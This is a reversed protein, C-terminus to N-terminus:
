HRPLNAGSRPLEDHNMNSKSGKSGAIQARPSVAPITLHYEVEIVKWFETGFNNSLVDLAHAKMARLYDAVVDVPKKNPPLLSRVQELGLPDALVNGVEQSPDLLLKMYQLLKGEKRISEPSTQFGWKFTGDPLYVMESPVKDV